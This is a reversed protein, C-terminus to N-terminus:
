SETLHVFPSDDSPSEARVTGWARAAKIAKEAQKDWPDLGLFDGWASADGGNIRVAMFAYGLAYWPGGRHEEFKQVDSFALMLDFEGVLFDRWQQQITLIDATAEFADLEWGYGSTHFAEAPGTEGSGDDGAHVYNDLIARAAGHAGDRIMGYTIKAVTARHGAATASEIADWLHADSEVYDNTAGDTPIVAYGEVQDADDGHLRSFSTM